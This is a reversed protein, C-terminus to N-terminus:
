GFISILFITFFLIDKERREKDEEEDEMSVLFIGEKIEVVDEGDM